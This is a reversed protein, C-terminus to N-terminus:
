LDTFPDYDSEQNEVFDIWAVFTLWYNQPLDSKATLANLSLM